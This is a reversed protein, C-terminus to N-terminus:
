PSETALWYTCKKPWSAFSEAGKTFQLLYKNGGSLYVIYLEQNQVDETSGSPVKSGLVNERSSYAKGPVVDDDGGLSEARRITGGSVTIVPQAELQDDGTLKFSGSGLPISTNVPVDAFQPGGFVWSIESSSSLPTGGASSTACFYAPDKKFTGSKTAFKGASCNADICAKLTVAYDKGCEISSQTLDLEIDISVTKVGPSYTKPNSGESNYSIWSPQLGLVEVRVIPEEISGEVNGSIYVKSGSTEVAFGYIDVTGDAKVDSSLYNNSSESSNGGQSNDTTTESSCAALVFTIVLGLCLPLALFSLKAKM